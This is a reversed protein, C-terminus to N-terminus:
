NEVISLEDCLLNTIRTIAREANASSAYPEGNAIIAGNNAILRIRVQGDEAHIRDFRQADIGNEIVSDIGAQAASKSAYGQSSLVIEGNGARLRFYTKGSTGKFLEFRQSRPAPVPTPNVMRQLITRTTKAGREAGREM